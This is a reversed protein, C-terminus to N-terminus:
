QAKERRKWQKMLTDIFANVEINCSRSMDVKDYTQSVYQRWGGNWHIIGIDQHLVVNHIIYKHLKHGKELPLKRFSLHERINGSPTYFGM